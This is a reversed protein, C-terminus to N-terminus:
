STSSNARVYAINSFVHPGPYCFNSCGPMLSPFFKVWFLQSFTRGIQCGEGGQCAAASRCCWRRCSRALSFHWILFFSSLSAFWRLVGHLVELSSAYYQLTHQSIMGETLPYGLVLYKNYYIRKTGPDLFFFMQWLVPCSIISPPNYKITVKVLHYAFSFVGFLQILYKYRYTKM